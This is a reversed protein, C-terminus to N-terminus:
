LEHSDYIASFASVGSLDNAGSSVALSAADQAAVDASLEDSFLNTLEASPDAEGLSISKLTLTETKAASMTATSPAGGIDAAFSAEKMLAGEESSITIGQGEGTGSGRPLMYAGGLIFTLILAPLVLAIKHISFFSIVSFPEPRAIDAIRLSSLARTLGVRSPQEKSFTKLKLLLAKTEKIEQARDPYRLALEREPAGAALLEFLEDTHITEPKM